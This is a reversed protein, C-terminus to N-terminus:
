LGLEFQVGDELFHVQLDFSHVRAIEAVLSLGLGAGDRNPNAQAGRVFRDFIHDQLSPPIGPGHDRFILRPRPSASGQGQVPVPNPALIRVEIPSEKPTYHLSNQLLNECLIRLLEPQVKATLQSPGQIQIRKGGPDLDLACQALLMSIDTPEKQVEMGQDMRALLLLASVLRGMRQSSGLIDQLFAQYEEPSRRQRLAVEAANQIGAIPNRLEHSADSTFRRQRDLAALLAGFADELIAALQDVEDGNHSRPLGKQGNAQVRKATEGLDRLPRVLRWSLFLSFALLVLLSFGGLVLITWRVGALQAEISAMSRSIRLFCRPGERREREEAEEGMEEKELDRAFLGLRRPPSGPLTVFRPMSLALPKQKLPPLAAGVRTLIRGSGADRLEVGWKDDVAGGLLDGAEVHARGEEWEVSSLFAEARAGIEADLAQFLSRRVGLYLVTSFVVLLLTTLLFFWARLTNQITMGRM